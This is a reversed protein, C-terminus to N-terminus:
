VNVDALEATAINWGQVVFKAARRSRVRELSINIRRSENPSLSFYNDSYLVPALLLGTAPDVLKFRILLAIGSTLNSVDVSFKGDKVAGVKCTM